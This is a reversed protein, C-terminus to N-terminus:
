VKLYYRTALFMSTTGLGIGTGLQILSIVLWHIQYYHWVHFSPLLIGLQPSLWFILPLFVLNAVVFGIMGYIVGQWVFPGWAFWNPAGVLKMTELEERMSYIALRVTSFVVLILLVILVLGVILSFYNIKKVLSFAKDIIKQRNLYDVQYILSPFTKELYNTITAYQGEQSATIDLSPRIANPGAEELAKLYLPEGAHQKKFIALAEESSIYRMKKIAEPFQEKLKTQVQAIQQETAERQFYVSIGMQSKVENVLGQSFGQFIFWISVLLVALTIIFATVISAERNKLFGVWGFRMLRKLTTTM